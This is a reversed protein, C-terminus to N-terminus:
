RDIRRIMVAEPEGAEGHEFLLLEVTTAYESYLSFNM